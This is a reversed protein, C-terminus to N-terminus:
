FANFDAYRKSGCTVYVVSVNLVAYRSDYINITSSQIVGRVIFSVTRIVVGGFDRWVTLIYNFKFSMNTVRSM